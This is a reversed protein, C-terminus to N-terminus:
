IKVELKESKIYVIEHTHTDFTAAAVTEGTVDDVEPKKLLKKIYNKQRSGSTARTNAKMVAPGCVFSIGKEGIVM